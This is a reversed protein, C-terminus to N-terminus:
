GGVGVGGWGPQKCLTLCTWKAHLVIISLFLERRHVYARPFPVLVGFLISLMVAVHTGGLLALAPQQERLWTKTVLMATLVVSGIALGLADSSAFRANLERCCCHRPQPALALAAAALCGLTLPHALHLGATAPGGSGGGTTPTGCCVRRRYPDDRWRKLYSRM